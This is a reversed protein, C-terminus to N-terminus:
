QLVNRDKCCFVRYKHNTGPLSHVATALGCGGLGGAEKDPIGFVVRRIRSHVLAMAEFIEPEKTIYLDYSFVDYFYTGEYNKSSPVNPMVGPVPNYTDVSWCRGTATSLISTLLKPDVGLNIGLNM